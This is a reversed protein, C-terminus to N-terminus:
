FKLDKDFISAQPGFNKNPNLFKSKQNFNNEQELRIELCWIVVWIKKLGPFPFPGDYSATARKWNQGSLLLNIKKQSKAM